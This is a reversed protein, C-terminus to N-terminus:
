LVLVGMSPQGAWGHGCVAGRADESIDALTGPMASHAQDVTDQM